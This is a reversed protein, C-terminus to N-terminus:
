LNIKLNNQSKSVTNPRICKCIHWTSGSYQLVYNINLIIGHKHLSDIKKLNNTVFKWLM